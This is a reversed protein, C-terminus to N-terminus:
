REGLTDVIEQPIRYSLRDIVPKDLREHKM